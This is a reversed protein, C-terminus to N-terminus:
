NVALTVSQPTSPVEHHTVQGFGAERCMNELEAFSYADGSETSALMNLAFTGAGPPTIRDDNVAFELIAMTGGPKLATRLRKLLSVNTAFDFHHVFNTVLILDYGSGYDATFADGEISNWREIVGFKQAHERAIELVGKWDLAHIVAELNKQAVVIGFLGHGAAIDLVKMPGSGATLAAITQAAPMMMPMMGRAFDVWVPNEVSVSGQAPLLTGGKRVTEALNDFASKLFPNLMFKAMGGMYAPSSEVLFQSSDPTLAYDHGNKILFGQITMFDSLVRIGKVSADCRDAIAEATSAGGAIAGFLKLEIAAKLAETRVYGQLSEFILM